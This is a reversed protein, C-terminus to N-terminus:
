TFYKGQLWSLVHCWLSCTSKTSCSIFSINEWKTEMDNKARVCEICNFRKFINTHKKDSFKTSSTTHISYDPKTRIWSMKYFNPQHKLSVVAQWITNLSISMQKIVYFTRNKSIAIWGFWLYLLLVWLDFYNRPLWKRATWLLATSNLLFISVLYKKEARKRRQSINRNKKVNRLCNHMFVLLLLFISFRWFFRITGLTHM